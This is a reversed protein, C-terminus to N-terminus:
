LKSKVTFALTAAISAIRNLKTAAAKRDSNTGSKLHEAVENLLSSIKIIPDEMKSINESKGIVM